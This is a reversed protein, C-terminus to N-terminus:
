AKRRRRMVGLGALGLAFLATTAPEAIPLAQGTVKIAMDDDFTAYYPGWSSGSFNSKAAPGGLVGYSWYTDHVESFVKFALWYTGAGLVLDPIDVTYDWNNRIGSVQHNGVSYSVEDGSALLGPTVPVTGTVDYIRWSVSDVDGPGGVTNDATFGVTDVISAGALTFQTAGFGISTSCATNFICNGKNTVTSFPNEFLTAAGAQSTVSAAYLLVAGFIAQITTFKRQAM